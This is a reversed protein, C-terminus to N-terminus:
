QKRQLKLQIDSFDTRSGLNDLWHWTAEFNGGDRKGHVNARSCVPNDLYWWGGIFRAPCDNNSFDRDYTSFPRGDINYLGNTLSDGTPNATDDKFLQLSIRYDDDYTSIDFLQYYSTQHGTQGFIVINLFFQPYNQLIDYINALGFWYNGYSTGFGDSYEKWTKNYDVEQCGQFRYLLITYGGWKFDCKVELIRGDAKPRIYSMLSKEPVLNKRIGDSCDEIVHQCQDGYYGIPCRTCKTEGCVSKQLYCVMNHVDQSSICNEGSEYLICEKSEEDFMFRRCEDVSSCLKACSFVSHDTRELLTHHFSAYSCGINERQVKTQIYTSM